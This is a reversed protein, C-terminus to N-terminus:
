LDDTTSVWKGNDPRYFVDVVGNDKSAKFGEAKLLVGGVKIEKPVQLSVAIFKKKSSKDSSSIDMRPKFTRKFEEYLSKPLGEKVLGIGRALKHGLSDKDQIKVPNIKNSLDKLNM